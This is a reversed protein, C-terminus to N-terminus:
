PRAEIKARGPAVPRRGVARRLSVRRDKAGSRRPGAATTRRPEVFIFFVSRSACCSNSFPRGAISAFRFGVSTPDVFPSALSRFSIRGRCNPEIREAASPISIMLSNPPDRGSVGGTAGFVYLREPGQSPIGQACSCPIKDSKIPAFGSSNDKLDAARRGQSSSRKPSCTWKGVHNALILVLRANLAHSEDISLGEHAALIMAYAEDPRAVNSDTVLM